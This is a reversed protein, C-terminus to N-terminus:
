PVSVRYFRSPASPSPTLTVSDTILGEDQWVTNSGQLVATSWLRGPTSSRLTLTGPSDGPGLSVEPIRVGLLEVEGVQMMSVSNTKISNFSLRYTSYSRSNPFGVQQVFQNIPNLAAGGNNREDPLNLPGSSILAYSAGGDNSGYLAYQTPDRGPVDNATYFRLYRVLSPGFAPTVVFGVPGVFSGSGGNLGFNLYKSTTDDIGRAVEEGAPSNGGFSSIVDGPRTVDPWSSMVTVTAVASTAAGAPNGAVLRYDAQDAMGVRALWLNTTTVGSIDPGDALDVYLGNTGKQWQLSIPPSAVAAATLM